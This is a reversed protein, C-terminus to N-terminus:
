EVRVVSKEAHTRINSGTGLITQTSNVSDTLLPRMEKIDTYFNLFRIFFLRNCHRM